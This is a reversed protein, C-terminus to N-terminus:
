VEGSSEAARADELDKERDAGEMAARHARDADEWNEFQLSEARHRHQALACSQRAEARKMARSPPLGLKDALEVCRKSVAARTVGHRAAIDTQSMGMYAVGTILAFCEVTLSKNTATLLEGVIARVMITAADMLRSDFDEGEGEGAEEIVPAALRSADLEPGGVGQSDLHAGEIGSRRLQDREAPGMTATWKAFEERYERDRAIQKTAYDGGDEDENEQTPSTPKQSM